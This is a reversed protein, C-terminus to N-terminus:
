LPHKVIWSILWAVPGCDGSFNAASSRSKCKSSGPGMKVDYCGFVIKLLLIVLSSHSVAIINLTPLFRM